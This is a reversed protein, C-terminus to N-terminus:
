PGATGACVGGTPADAESCVLPDTTAARLEMQAVKQMASRLMRWVECGLIVAACVGFALASAAVVLFVVAVDTM